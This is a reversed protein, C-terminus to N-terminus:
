ERHYPHGALVSHARYLQEALIVRVLAHPFTLESLSWKFNCRALVDKSLGDPGGILIVVDRGEQMRTQLWVVLGRTTFQDGHEDLAVVFDDRRLAAQLRESEVQIAQESSRGPGRPGAAVETLSIKLKSGLRKIYDDFAEDVWRPMRSGVAIIRIRM